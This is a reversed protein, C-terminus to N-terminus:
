NVQIKQIFPFAAIITFLRGNLNNNLDIVPTCHIQKLSNGFILCFFFITLIKTIYSEFINKM